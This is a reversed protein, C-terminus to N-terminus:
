TEMLWEALREVEVQFERVAQEIDAVLIPERPIRIRLGQRHAPFDDNYSVYDCWQREACAMQFQVQKIYGPDLGARGSKLIAAHHVHTPCKFEVMGDTGVLGDPSCGALKLRPHEIFAVQEVTNSCVFQYWSRAKPEWIHAEEMIKSQYTQAPRGTAREVALQMMYNARLGEGPVRAKAMMDKIRSATIKGCRLQLWEETGQEITM